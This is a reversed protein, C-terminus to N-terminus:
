KSEKKGYLLGILIRMGVILLAVVPSLVRLGTSHVAVASVFSPAIFCTAIVIDALIVVWRDLRPNLPLSRAVFVYLLDTMILIVLAYVLVQVESVVHAASSNDIFAINVLFSVFVLMSVLMFRSATGWYSLAGLLGHLTLTNKSPKTSKKTM